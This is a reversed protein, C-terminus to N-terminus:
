HNEQQELAMAPLLVQRHACCAIQLHATHLSWCHTEAPSARKRLLVKAGKAPM